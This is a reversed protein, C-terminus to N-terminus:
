PLRTYDDIGYSANFAVQADFRHHFVADDGVCEACAGHHAAQLFNELAAVRAIGPGDGLADAAYAGRHMRQGADARNLIRQADRHRGRRLDDAVDHEGRLVHLIVHDVEIVQVREVPHVDDVRELGIGLLGGLQRLRKRLPVFIVGRIEGFHLVLDLGKGGATQADEGVAIPAMRSVLQRRFHVQDCDSVIEIRQLPLFFDDLDMGDEAALIRVRVVKDAANRAGDVDVFNRGDVHLPEFRTDRSMLWASSNM